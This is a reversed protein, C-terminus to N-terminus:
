STTWDQTIWQLLASNRLKLSAELENLDMVFPTVAGYYDAQPGIAHFHFGLRDLSHVLSREMAAFWYRIGSKRSHRYMERYMGLLLMPSDTRRREVGPPSPPLELKASVIGPVGHVSDARRRRYNKRVVLRSIEMSQERPPMIYDAFLTCHQEFPYCLPDQPQVLRVAGVLTEDTAYAAFHTSCGEYEDVELGHSFDEARLFARELCYVEYRLRFIAPPVAGADHGPYTRLFVQSDARSLAEGYFHGDARPPVPQPPLENYVRDM